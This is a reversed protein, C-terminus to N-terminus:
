NLNKIFKAPNGGVLTMSEVNKTVVSGAAIVAGRGLTVGKLIIANIGIWVDDEILIPAHSPNHQKREGLSVGHGDSDLITVNAAILCNKGIRIQGTAHISAGNVRTGEGIEILADPSSDVMLRVPHYMATHYGFDNSRLTVQKHLVIRGKIREIKPRGLVLLDGFSEVGQKKVWNADLKQRIKIRWWIKWHTLSLLNKLKLSFGKFKPFQLDINVPHLQLL